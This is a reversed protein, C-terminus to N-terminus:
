RLERAVSFAALFMAEQELAFQEWCADQYRELAARGEPSLHKKLVALSKEETQQLARHAQHDLFGPTRHLQVYDYLIAMLDTM